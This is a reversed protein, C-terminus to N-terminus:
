KYKLIKCSFILIALISYLYSTHFRKIMQCKVFDPIPLFITVLKDISLPKTRTKRNLNEFSNGVRSDVFNSFIETNWFM